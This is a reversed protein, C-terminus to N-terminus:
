PPANSPSYRRKEANVDRSIWGPPRAYPSAYGIQETPRGRNGNWWQHYSTPVRRAQYALQPYQPYQFTPRVFRPPTKPVSAGVVEEASETSTSSSSPVPSSPPPPAAKEIVEKVLPPYEDVIHIFDKRHVRHENNRAPKPQPEPRKSPTRHLPKHYAPTSSVSSRVPKPAPMMFPSTLRSDQPYPQPCTTQPLVQLYQPYMQQRADQAQWGQWSNYQEQGGHSQSAAPLPQRPGPMKGQGFMNWEMDTEIMRQVRGHGGGKTRSRGYGGRSKSRESRRSSRSRSSEAVDRGTGECHQCPSRWQPPTVLHFWHDLELCCLHIYRHIYYIALWILATGFVAAFVLAIILNKNAMNPVMRLFCSVSLICLSLNHANPSKVRRSTLSSAVNGDRRSICCVNHLRWVLSALV